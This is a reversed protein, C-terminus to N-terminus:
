MGNDSSGQPLPPPDKGSVGRVKFRFYRHSKQAPVNEEELAISGVIESMDAAALSFAQRTQPILTDSNQKFGQRRDLVAASKVAVKTDQDQRLASHNRQRVLEEDLEQIREEATTRTAAV